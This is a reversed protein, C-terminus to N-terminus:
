VAVLDFKLLFSFEPLLSVVFFVWSTLSKSLVFLSAIIIALPPPFLFAIVYEQFFIFGDIYLSNM